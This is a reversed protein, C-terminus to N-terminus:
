DICGTQEFIVNESILKWAIAAINRSDDLGSHHRGKLPLKLKDLMEKMGIGKCIGGMHDKIFERFPYKINIWRKFDKSYSIKSFEAQAPLMKRLDWDGCTVFIWKKDPYNSKFISIFKSVQKFVEEFSESYDVTEQTIGTLSTCFRTLIPNKIPKVYKRFEDVIKGTKVDLIVIPFEIIESKWENKHTASCTAEFDLVFLYDYKQNKDM